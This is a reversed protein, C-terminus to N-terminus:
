SYIFPVIIKNFPMSLLIGLKINDVLFVVFGFSYLRQRKYVDGLGRSKM